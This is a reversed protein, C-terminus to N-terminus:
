HDYRRSALPSPLSMEAYSAWITERLRRSSVKSPLYGCTAAWRRDNYSHCALLLFSWPLIHMNCDHLLQRFSLARLQHHYPSPLVRGPADPRTHTSQFGHGDSQLVRLRPTCCWIAFRTPLKVRHRVLPVMVGLRVVQPLFSLLWASDVLRAVHWRQRWWGGYEA